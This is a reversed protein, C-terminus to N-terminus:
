KVKEIHDFPFIVINTNGMINNKPILGIYRSDSSEDRNDGVVFYMDKPITSYGIETLSFDSIDEKNFNEKVLKNDIYLKNNKFEVYENPLGIVRKIIPSDGLRKIVVIDFRKIDNLRYNIKYLLMIDNNKLTPNMSRGIVKVPTVIFSRIIIVVIVIILYPLLAKIIKM